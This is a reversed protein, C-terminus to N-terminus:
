HKKTSSTARRSLAPIECSPARSTRKTRTNFGATRRRVVATKSTDPTSRSEAELLRSTRSKRTRAAESPRRRRGRTASHARKSGRGNRKMAKVLAWQPNSTVGFAAKRSNFCTATGRLPSKASFEEVEGEAQEVVECEIEALKENITEAVKKMGTLTKHRAGKSLFELGAAAHGLGMANLPKDRPLGVASAVLSKANEPTLKSSIIKVCASAVSGKFREAVRAAANRNAVQGAGQDSELVDQVAAHEDNWTSSSESGMLLRGAIRNQDM